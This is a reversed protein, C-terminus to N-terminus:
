QKELEDLAERWTQCGYDLWRYPTEIRNEDIHSQIAWWMHGHHMDFQMVLEMADDGASNEKRFSLLTPNFQDDFPDDTLVDVEAYGAERMEVRAQVISPATGYVVQINHIKPLVKGEEHLVTCEVIRDNLIMRLNDNSAIASADYLNEDAANLPAEVHLLVSRELTARVFRQPQSERHLEIAHALVDVLAGRSQAKAMNIWGIPYVQSHEHSFVECHERNSGRDCFGIVSGSSLRPYEALADYLRELSKQGYLQGDIKVDTRLSRM